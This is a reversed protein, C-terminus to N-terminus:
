QPSRKRTADINQQQQKPQSLLPQQAILARLLTISPRGRSADIQAQWYRPQQNTEFNAPDLKSLLAQAGRFDNQALKM